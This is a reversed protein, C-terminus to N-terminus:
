VLHVLFVAAIDHLGQFYCLTPDSCLLADIIASLQRRMEPRQTAKMGPPLRWLSRAVDVAVKTFPRLSHLASPRYLMWYPTPYFVQETDKHGLQRGQTIASLGEVHQASDDYCAGVLAPWARSRIHPTLLGFTDCALSRLVALDIADSDIIQRLSTERLVVPVPHILTAKSHKHLCHSCSKSLSIYLPHCNFATPVPM